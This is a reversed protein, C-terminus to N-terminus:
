NRLKDFFCSFYKCEQKLVTLNEPDQTPLVGLVALNMLNNMHFAFQQVVITLQQVVFSLHQVVFSLHQVVNLSSSTVITLSSVVNMSSSTVITLSSVVNASQQIVNLSSSVVIM